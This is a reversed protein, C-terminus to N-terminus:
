QFLPDDGKLTGVISTLLMGGCTVGFVIESEIECCSHV